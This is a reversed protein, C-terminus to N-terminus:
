PVDKRAFGAVGAWSDKSSTRRYLAGNSALIAGPVGHFRIIEESLQFRHGIPYARPGTM